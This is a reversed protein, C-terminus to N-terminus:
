RAWFAIQLEELREQIHNCTNLSFNGVGSFLWGIGIFVGAFIIRRMLEARIM